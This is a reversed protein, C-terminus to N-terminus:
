HIYVNHTESTHKIVDKRSKMDKLFAAKKDLSMTYKKTGTKFYVTISCFTQKKKKDYPM